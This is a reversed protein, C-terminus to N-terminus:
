NKKDRKPCTFEQEFLSDFDICDYIKEILEGPPIGLGKTLKFITYVSPAKLDREIESLYSRDLNIENALKEQTMGKEERLPRIVKGIYITKEKM